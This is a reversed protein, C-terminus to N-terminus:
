NGLFALLERIKGIGALVAQQENVVKDLSGFYEDNVFLAYDPKGDIQGSVIKITGHPVGDINQSIRMDILTKVNQMTALRKDM